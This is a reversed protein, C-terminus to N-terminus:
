KGAAAASGALADLAEQYAVGMLEVPQGNEVRLFGRLSDNIRVLYLSPDAPLRQAWVAPWQEVPIELLLAIRDLVEKREAESLQNLTMRARRHIEYHKSPM